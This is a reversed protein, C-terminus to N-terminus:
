IKRGRKLISKPTNIKERANYFDQYLLSRLFIKTAWPDAKAMVKSAILGITWIVVSLGLSLVDRGAVCLSLAICALLIINEREGGLILIPRTLSQLLPTMTKSRPM